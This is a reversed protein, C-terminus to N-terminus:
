RLFPHPQVLTSTYRSKNKHRRGSLLSPEQQRSTKMQGGGSGLGASYNKSAKQIKGGARGRFAFFIMFDPSRAPESHFVDNRFDEALIQIKWGPGGPRDRDRRGDGIEAESARGLEVQVHM